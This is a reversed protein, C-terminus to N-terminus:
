PTDTTGAALQLQHSDKWANLDKVTKPTETTAEPHSRVASPNQKTNM